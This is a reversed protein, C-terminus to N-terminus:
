GGLALAIGIPIVIDGIVFKWDISITKKEPNTSM